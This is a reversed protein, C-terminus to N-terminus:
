YSRQEVKVQLDLVLSSHHTLLSLPEDWLRKFTTIMVSSHDVAHPSRFNIDITVQKLNPFNPENSLINALRRWESVSLSPTFNTHMYPNVGSGAQQDRFPFPYSLSLSIYELM